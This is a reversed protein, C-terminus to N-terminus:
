RSRCGAGIDMGAEYVATQVDLLGLLSHFLHDHTWPQATKAALCAVDLGFSASFGPSLWWVMPVKLQEKPAVAYPVGHLFLGREGLSEGHDSVFLMATNHTAAQSQLFSITQALVHDTYLVANDYANVVAQTDCRRLEATDCTPTFRKFAPPYRKHYTPGHNGLLHLVLVFNGQQDRVLTDLGRLLIEDWCRGDSCLEPLDSGELRDQPMGDCVGKCGSQNDRWRVAFGARQLVHLVSESTRIRHEDYDRRGIASFMCPLSTETNTGCATVDTFNLLSAAANPAANPAASPSLSPAASLAVTLAALAPTTQRAYGTVAQSLGWSAARTTEGVVVVMLAPKGRAAWGLGLRADEGVVQRQAQAERTNGQVVRATAYILNAPTILYRLEKRNRMLSSFDQFVSLLAAVAVVAAVAVTLARVGLARLWPREVITTRWVLLLPLGAYLLLHPLMWWGFVESAEAPDSHLANRVMTPDFFVGFRQTYYLAVANAIIVVSLLLRAWRRHLLPALLLHHLATLLLLMAVAFWWTSGDSWSRGELVANLFVGNCGLAFFFSVGFALTDTTIAPKSRWAALAKAPRAGTATPHSALQDPSAPRHHPPAPSPDPHM